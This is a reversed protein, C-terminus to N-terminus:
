LVIRLIGKTEGARLGRTLAEEPRLYQFFARLDNGPSNEV